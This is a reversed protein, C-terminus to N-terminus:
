KVRVVDIKVGSEDFFMRTRLEVREIMGGCTFILSNEETMALLLCKDIVGYTYDPSIGAIHCMKKARTGMAGIHGGYEGATKKLGDADFPDTDALYITGTRGTFSGELLGTMEPIGKPPNEGPLVGRKTLEAYLNLLVPPTLRAQKMMAYNTFVASPTGQHLVAGGA